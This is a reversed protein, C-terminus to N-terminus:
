GLMSDVFAIIETMREGNISYYITKGDRRTSVIKERRLIALHQSAVSQEIQMKKYIDTVCIEKKEKLIKIMQQRLTNNLARLTFAAKKIMVTDVAMSNTGKGLTIQSKAM